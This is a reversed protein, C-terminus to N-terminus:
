PASSAAPAPRMAGCQEFIEAFFPELAGAPDDGLSYTGSKEILNKACPGRTRGFRDNPIPLARGSVGELGAVWRFPGGIGLRDRLFTPCQELSKGFGAEDLPILEPLAELSYTDVTWIEADTFMFVLAPTSDSDRLPIVGAGDAGRVSFTNSYPRYLPILSLEGVLKQIDSIKLVQPIPQLPMVRLWLAPGDALKVPFDKHGMM